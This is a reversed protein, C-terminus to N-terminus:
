EKKKNELKKLEAKLRITESKYHDRQEITKKHKKKEEWEQPNINKEYEDNTIVDKIKHLEQMKDKIYQPTNEFVKYFCSSELDIGNRIGASQINPSFEIEEEAYVYDSQDPKFIPNGTIPHTM